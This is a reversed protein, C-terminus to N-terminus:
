THTSNNDIHEGFTCLNFKNLRIVADRRNEEDVDRFGSGTMISDVIKQIKFCTALTTQVYIIVMELGELSKEENRLFYVLDILGRIGMNSQTRSIAYNLSDSNM